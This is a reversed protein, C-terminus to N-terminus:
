VRAESDANGSCLTQGPRLILGPLSSIFRGALNLPSDARKDQRRFDKVVFGLGVHGIAAEHALNFLLSKDRRVDHKRPHRGACAPINEADEGRRLRNEIGCAFAASQIDNFGADVFLAPEAGEAPFVRFSFFCLVIM